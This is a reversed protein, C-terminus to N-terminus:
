AGSRPATTCASVANRDGPDIGAALRQPGTVSPTPAFGALHPDEPASAALRRGALAFFAAFAGALGTLEWLGLKPHAGALPPGVLVYLDLAQAALLGFAVRLLVAKSGRARRLLLVLFPLVFGLLLSALTLASWGPEARRAYYVAEEPINTYWILMHQCYAVYVWLISFSLLLKGVDHCRADTLQGRLAPCDRMLVLLITAAALGGVVMGTATRLAFLTSFWHPELSQIWDISAISWTVALLAVHAAARRLTPRRALARTSLLWFAFCGALRLAFAPLNLWASKRALLPDHTAGHAWEYLTPVGPLLVLGLLAALPLAAGMARLVPRLPDAFRGSAVTVLGLFFGGALALETLLLFGLLFGTWARRPDFWLGAALTLAALAAIVGLRRAVPANM